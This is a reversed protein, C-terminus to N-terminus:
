PLLELLHGHRPTETLSPTSTVMNAAVALLVQVIVSVSGVPTLQIRPTPVSKSNVGSARARWLSGAGDYNVRALVIPVGRRADSGVKQSPGPAAKPM